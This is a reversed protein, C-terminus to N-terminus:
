ATRTLPAVRLEALLTRAVAEGTEVAGEMYGQFEM